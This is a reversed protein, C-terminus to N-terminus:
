PQTNPLIQSVICIVIRNLEYRYIAISYPLHYM